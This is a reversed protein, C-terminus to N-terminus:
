LPLGIHRRLSKWVEVGLEQQEPIVFERSCISRNDLDITPVIRVIAINSVTLEDQGYSSCCEILEQVVGIQTGRESYVPSGVEIDHCSTLLAKVTEGKTDAM